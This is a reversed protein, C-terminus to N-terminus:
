ESDSCETGSTNDTDKPFDNDQWINRKPRGYEEFFNIHDDIVAIEHSSHVSRAINSIVENEDQCLQLYVSMSLQRIQQLNVVMVRRKYEKIIVKTYDYLTKCKTYDLELLENLRLQIASVIRKPQSVLKVPSPCLTKLYDLDVGLDNCKLEIPDGKRYLCYSLYKYLNDYKTKISYAKNGGLPLLRTLNRRFTKESVPIKIYGHYHYNEPKSHQVMFLETGNEKLWKIIDVNEPIASMDIRFLLETMARVGNTAMNWVENRGEM